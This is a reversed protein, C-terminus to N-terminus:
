PAPDEAAPEPLAEAAGVDDEPGTGIRVGAQALAALVEQLHDFDEPSGVLHAQIGSSQIIETPEGRALREAGQSAPLTRLAELALSLLDAARVGGLMESAEQGQLRTLIASVPIMAANQAAVAQRAHREAMKQTEELLALRRLRDQEADWAAVREVWRNHRSWDRVVAPNRELSAATRVLSRGPGLDRYVTFAAWSKPTDFPQREWPAPPPTPSPQM